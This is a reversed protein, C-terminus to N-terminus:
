RCMHMLSDSHCGISQVSIYFILNFVNSVTWLIKQYRILLHMVNATGAAMEFERQESSKLGLTHCMFLNPAMVMAVNGATM